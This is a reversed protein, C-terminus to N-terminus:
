RKKNSELPASECYILGLDTLAREFNSLEDYSKGYLKQSMDNCKAESFAEKRDKEETEAIEMETAPDCDDDVLVLKYKRIKYKSKDKYIGHCNSGRAAEISKFNYENRATPPMYVGVEENTERDVIRFIDM